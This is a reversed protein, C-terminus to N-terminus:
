VQINQALGSIIATGSCNKEYSLIKSLMSYQQDKSNAHLM